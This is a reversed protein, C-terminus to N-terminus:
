RTAPWALTLGSAIMSTKPPRVNVPLSRIPPLTMTQGPIALASRFFSQVPGAFELLEAYVYGVVYAPAALPLVLAPILWTSGCFRYQTTLWAAVVGITTSILAVGVMLLLTNSLYTPLVTDVLHALVAADPVLLATLLVAIPISVPLAILLAGASWGASWISSAYSRTLWATM